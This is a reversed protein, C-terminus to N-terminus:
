RPALVRSRGGPSTASLRQDYMAQVQAGPRDYAGEYAARAGVLVVVSGGRELTLYHIARDDRFETRLIKGTTARTSAPSGQAQAAGELNENRPEWGGPFVQVLALNELRRDSTNQIRAEVLFDEGQALDSPDVAEGTPKRYAVSLAIGNSRVPTAAPDEVARRVLLAQVAASSTAQVEVEGGFGSPLPISVTGKASKATTWSGGGLRWRAEVGSSTGSGGLWSAVAWLATGAEQTSLWTGGDALDKRVQQFIDQTKDASGARVMAELLLARDRAPSHLWGGLSRPVDPISTGIRKAMEAAADPRGATAYAAALIWRSLSPLPASRLRNMLPLEPKGALALLDLREVQALTDDVGAYAGPSWRSAADSLHSLFHDYMAPPVPHGKAHALVLFRGAWLTGWEYPAGEGPWLSFAGSATQFRPLRALAADVNSEAEQLRSAPAEPLLKSLFLQPFAASTTQELCGHPYRLLEDLRNEIGLVGTGSLELRASRSAAIGFPPLAGKWAAGARATGGLTRSVPEGPLRVPVSLEQQAQGHAASAKVSIRAAGLEDTAAVRFRVVQDGPKAFVASALPSGVLRVGGRVELRVQVEGKRDSFVTVPLTATDGPGLARPATALAMVPSKVPITRDTRGFATAATAVAMVRVSGTYRPVPIEVDMGGKPVAFPGRVVVMPAFPNQRADGDKRRLDGDGGVTFLRDIRGSWADSVEDYLDWGQVSLATRAHFRKWADPTEHGTLDLLGEDVVAVWAQMPRGTKESLHIRQTSAPRWESGTALQPELRSRPDRVVVPVVGWLRLPRDSPPPYPQLITVQVYVGPEMEPGAKGKWATEPASTEIWEQSLIRRGRMVQVLAKGHAPGPFRVEVPEGPAVTDRVARVAVLAPAKRQREEGDGWGGDGWVNVFAGSQHGGLADSVLILYRGPRSLAVPRTTGAQMEFTEQLRTEKRSVFGQSRDGEEWWWWQPHAYVQVKLKGEERAGQATALVAELRVESGQTAWGFGQDTTLHVGVYRPFPSVPFTERDISAQGGPEFVRSRFIGTLLGRADAPGPVSVPFGAKGNGDLNGEWVTREAPPDKESVPDDFVFDRLGPGKIATKEFSMEVKGSLGAATGGSLWRSSLTLRGPSKSALIPHDSGLEVKLRNPRVTEVLIGRSESAPGAEALVTWRGTPDDPRTATRWSFFGDPASKLVTSAVVHGRPDRLSLRVPLKEVPRGDGGRMVCGAFLSDGPRYAGRETFVFLRIGDEDAVGDVDFRSLNRIEGERMRLFALHTRGGREASARVLVTRGSREFSVTGDGDATGSGVVQDQPDLLEVKAGKWPGAEAMDTAVALIRGDPEKWAMLGLDSALISRRVVGDGYWPTWFSPTCPNERDRWNWGSEEGGDEGGENGSSATDKPADPCQYLMGRRVRQLSVSYLGPGSKALAPGLDLETRLRQNPKAQLEITRDFVVEGIRLEGRGNDFDTESPIKEARLRSVRVRVVSLNVTEFHIRDKSATPLITGQELFRASPLFDSFRSVLLVDASLGKGDASPLGKRLFLRVIKGQAPWTARLEHGDVELHPAVEKGEVEVLGQVDSLSGLPDSFLVEFGETGDKLFDRSWIVGFSDAAPIPFSWERDGGAEDGKAKVTLTNGNRAVGGLRITGSAASIKISAGSQKASFLSAPDDKPPRTFETSLALTWTGDAEKTFSEPHIELDGPAAAFSFPYVPLRKDGTLGPLDLRATYLTGPELDESPVFELTQHDKWRLAGKLEPSIALLAPDAEKSLEQDSAWPRLFHVRIPGRPGVSGATVWDIEKAALTEDDASLLPAGHDGGFFPFRCGSLLALAILIAIRRFRSSDM